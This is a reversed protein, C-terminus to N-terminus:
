IRSPATREGRLYNLVCGILVAAGYRFAEEDFDFKPHHHPYVLGKAPNRSGVMLFTSPVQQGFFSFDESGMSPEAKVVVAEEGFLDTVVKHALRTTHEDNVTAPYIPVLEFDYSGGFASTVGRLIGDVREKIRQKTSPYLTRLTGTMEVKDAIVNHRYGGRITGISLVAPHVPDIQRSVVTQLATIASAATVIADVTQHPSAGHGGEGHISIRVEDVAAMSTGYQLQVKGVMLDNWLHIGYVAEVDPNKLVGQEIMPRAGGPGEEAPQFFFKVTGPLDERMQSLYKAAGLLMAVHGDHGCAHMVGDVQSRYPCGEKADQIPLADMDARLGIVRGPKGGTLVGMVGTEAIKTTVDIGMKELETAILAATRTERLGLEPHRHLDRRIDVMYRYLGEDIFKPSVM